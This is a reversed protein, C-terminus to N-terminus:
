NEEIIKLNCIDTTAFYHGSRFKMKIKIRVQDGQRSVILCEINEPLYIAKM